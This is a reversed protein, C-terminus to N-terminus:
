RGYVGEIQRFLYRVDSDFRYRGHRIALLEPM